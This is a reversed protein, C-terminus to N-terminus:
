ASGSRGSGGDKLPRSAPPLVAGALTRDAAGWMLLRVIACQDIEPNTVWGFHGARAHSSSPRCRAPPAASYAAEASAANAMAQRRLPWEIHEPRPHRHEPVRDAREYGPQEDRPANRDPRSRDECRRHGGCGSTVIAVGRRRENLTGFM